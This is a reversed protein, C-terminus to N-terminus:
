FHSILGQEYASESAYRSSVIPALITGYSIALIGHLFEPTCLGLSFVVKQQM